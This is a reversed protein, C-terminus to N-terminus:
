DLALLARGYQQKDFATPAVAEASFRSLLAPENLVRRLAAAIAPGSVDPLLIGNRGDEVVEGCSRSAIVPLRHAQAELQTIGFGDSHSPFLFVDADRYYELARSRPQFGIWEVRPDNQFEAPVDIGSPGVFTMHIPQGELSKLAELIEAVGKRVNVQGVFLARLPREASFRSPYSKASREADVKGEYALPIVRIRDAAIGVRELAKRSWASNVVIRDALECERKWETWFHAPMREWGRSMRAHREYLEIMLQEDYEGADMQGLITRWGRERALEFIERAAYSYAFVTVDTGAPFTLRRLEALCRRQFRRNRVVIGDWLRLRHARILLELALSRINWSTVPANALDPHFRERLRQGGVLSMISGPPVWLETFARHLVGADQLVRPVLYHDRFGVQCTIWRSPTLSSPTQLLRGRM